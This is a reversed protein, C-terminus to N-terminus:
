RHGYGERSIALELLKEDRPDRAFDFRAQTARLYEGFYRFRRLAVEVRETTLEPFRDVVVKDTLVARYEALLPKSLVLTIIHKEVAELIKGSASRTNLLGRLVINTDLVLRIPSASV